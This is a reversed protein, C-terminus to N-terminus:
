RWIENSRAAEAYLAELNAVGVAETFCREYRTRNVAGIHDVATDTLTAIAGALAAPARPPVVLQDPADVIEPGGAVDTVIVPLGASMAEILVMGFTEYLESTMILARAGLLAQRIEDRERWGRFDVSSDADHALQAALPGDGIIALQKVPGSRDVLRWADLLTDIGKGPALRGISVITESTSPSAPRPGPDDVFHPKVVVREPPIGIDTLRDAMFRSPAVFRTVSKPLVSRARTAMIEAAQVASLVRSGRYCGHIVGPLPARGVCATCTTGDRYLDTSLCALRFNHLTMVVPVGSAGAAAVTSSSLAFWTNHVHIVDPDFRGITDTVQRGMPRNHVSRALARVSALATSPNDVTFQRVDHGAGRLATAEADVVSDEGARIRYRAHLQLVRM